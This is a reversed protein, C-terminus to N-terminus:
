PLKSVQRTYAPHVPPTFFRYFIVGFLFGGIHAWWAVGGADPLGLTALGSFLQAVFWFGLYFLAPVQVFWPILFIFVLSHVRARPYLMFFAGMVGAIAGSAGVTPIASDSNILAYLGGSVIGGLLYFVLYQIHGMRDEVNDGFIYLMWINVIFHFWSAHLFPHTLLTLLPLPNALTLLPETLQLRAPVLGLTLFLRDLSAQPLTLEFIFVLTNIGIFTLNIIPFSYTRVTDRLPIV